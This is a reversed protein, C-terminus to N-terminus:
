GLINRWYAVTDATDALPVLVEGSRIKGELEAVANWIWSPQADRM